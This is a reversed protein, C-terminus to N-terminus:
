EQGGKEKVQARYTVRPYGVVNRPKSNNLDADLIVFTMTVQRQFKLCQFNLIVSHVAMHDGDMHVGDTHRQVWGQRKSAVM